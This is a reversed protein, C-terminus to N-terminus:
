GVIFNIELILGNTSLKIRLKVISEFKCRCDNKLAVMFTKRNKEANPTIQKDLRKFTVM